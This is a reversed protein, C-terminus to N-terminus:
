FGWLPMRDYFGVLIPVVLLAGAAMAAVGLEDLQSGHPLALSAFVLLGGAAFLYAFTRAALARDMGDPRPPGSTNWKLRELLPPKIPFGDGRRWVAYGLRPRAALRYDEARGPSRPPRHWPPWRHAAGTTRRGRRSRWPSRRWRCAPSWCHATASTGTRM